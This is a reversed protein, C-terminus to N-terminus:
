AATEPLRLPSLSDYLLLHRAYPTHRVLVDVLPMTSGGNEDKAELPVRGEM